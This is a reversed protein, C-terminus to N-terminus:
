LLVFDLFFNLIGGLFLNKRYHAIFRSIYQINQSIRFIMKIHPIRFKAFNQGSCDSALTLM